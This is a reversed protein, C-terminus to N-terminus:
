PKLAYPSAHSPRSRIHRFAYGPTVDDDRIPGYPSKGYPGGAGPPGYDMRAPGGSGNPFGSSQEGAGSLLYQQLLMAHAQHVSAVNGSIVIQRNSTGPVLEGKQSVAIKAGSRRMIESMCSGQKGIVAGMANDPLHIIVECNTQLVYFEVGPYSVSENRGFSSYGFQQVPAVANPPEVMSQARYDLQLCCERLNSDEQIEQIIAFMANKVADFGGSFFVLRESLSNNERESVVVRAGTNESLNKITRGGKGIIASVATKPVAMACSLRDETDSIGGDVPHHDRREDGRAAHASTNDKVKHLIILLASGLNESNGSIVCIRQATGPFYNEANSLRITCNTQKELNAIESGARGIISGAVLSSVLVKAYCPGSLGGSQPRPASPNSESGSQM